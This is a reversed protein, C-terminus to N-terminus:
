AHCKAQSKRHSVLMPIPVDIYDKQEDWVEPAGHCAAFGCQKLVEELVGRDLCSIVFASIAEILNERAEKATAGQSTVDLSPCYSIFVGRKKTVVAPLQMRLQANDTKTKM